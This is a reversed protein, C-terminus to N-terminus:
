KPPVEGRLLHDLAGRAAGGPHNQVEAVSLWGISIARNFGMAVCSAIDAERVHPPVEVPVEVLRGHADQAFGYTMLLEQAHPQPASARKRAAEQEKQKPTKPSVKKAVRKAKATAAGAKEKARLRRGGGTGRGDGDDGAGRM